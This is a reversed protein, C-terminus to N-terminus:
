WCLQSNPCDADTQGVSWCTNVAGRCQALPLGVMVPCASPTTAASLFQPSSPYSATGYAQLALSPTPARVPQTRFPAGRSYQEGPSSRSGFGAVLSFGAAGQHAPAQHQAGQGARVRM